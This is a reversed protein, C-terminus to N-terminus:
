RFTLQTGSTDPYNKFKCRFFLSGSEDKLYSVIQDLEDHTLDDLDFLYRVGRLKEQNIRM